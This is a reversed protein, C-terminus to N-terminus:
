HEVKGAKDLRGLDFGKYPPSFEPRASRALSPINEEASYKRSIARRINKVIRESSPKQNESKQM